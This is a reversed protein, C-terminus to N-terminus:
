DDVPYHCRCLMLFKGANSLVHWYNEAIFQYISRFFLEKLTWILVSILMLKSDELYVCFTFCFSLYLLFPICSQFPLSLLDHLAREFCIGMQIPYIIVPTSRVTSLQMYRGKTLVAWLVPLFLNHFFHLLYLIISFHAKCLIRVRYAM